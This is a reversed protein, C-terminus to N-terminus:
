RKRFRRWGVLGLLGSGLLLLTSPLPVPTIPLTLQFFGEGSLWKPIGFSNANDSMINFSLTNEIGVSLPINNQSYISQGNLLTFGYLTASPTAYISTYDAFFNGQVINQTDLLDKFIIFSLNVSGMASANADSVNGGYNNATLSASIDLEHLSISPSISVASNAYAVHTDGSPFVYSKTLSAEASLLGTNHQQIGTISAYADCSYSENTIFIYYAKAESLFILAFFAVFFNIILFKKM